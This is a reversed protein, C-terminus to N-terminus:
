WKSDNLKSKWTISFYMKSISSLILQKFRESCPMERFERINKEPEESCGQCNKLIKEFTNQYWDWWHQLCLYFDGRQRASKAHHWIRQVWWNKEQNQWGYWLTAEHIGWHVQLATIHWGSIVFLAFCSNVGLNKWWVRFRSFSYCLTVLKLTYHKPGVELVRPFAGPDEEVRWHWELSTRSKSLDQTSPEM